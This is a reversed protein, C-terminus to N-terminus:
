IQVTSHSLAHHTAVKEASVYDTATAGVMAAVDRRAEKYIGSAALARILQATSLNAGELWRIQWELPPVIAMMGVYISRHMIHLVAANRETAALHYSGPRKRDMQRWHQEGSMNPVGDERAVRQYKRVLADYAPDLGWLEASGRLVM